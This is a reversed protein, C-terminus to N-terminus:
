YIIRFADLHDAKKEQIDVREVWSYGSGERCWNIFRNCPESDGGIMAKVSGDALNRVWGKLGLSRAQRRAAARFGVGQVRGHIHIEFQSLM